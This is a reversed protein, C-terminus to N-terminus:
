QAFAAMWAQQYSAYLDPYEDLHGQFHPGDRIKRQKTMEPLLFKKKAYRDGTPALELFQSGLKACEAAGESVAKEPHRGYELKKNVLINLLEKADARMRSKGPADTNPISPGWAYGSAKASILDQREKKKAGRAHKVMASRPAAANPAGSTQTGGEWDGDWYEPTNRGSPM